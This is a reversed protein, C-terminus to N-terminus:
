GTGASHAPQYTPVEYDYTSPLYPRIALIACLSMAWVRWFIIALYSSHFLHLQWVGYKVYPVFLFLSEEFVQPM